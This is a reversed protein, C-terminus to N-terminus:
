NSNQYLWNSFNSVIFDRERENLPTETRPSRSRRVHSKDPLDLLSRLRLIFSISRHFNAPPNLPAAEFGPPLHCITEPQCWWNPCLDTLAVKKYFHLSRYFALQNEGREWLSHRLSNVQHKYACWSTRSSSWGSSSPCKFQILPM